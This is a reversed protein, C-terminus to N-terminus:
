RVDTNHGAVWLWKDGKKRYVDTIKVIGFESKGTSLVVSIGTVYYHVIALEPLVTICVPRLEQIPTQETKADYTAWKRFSAKDSPLPAGQFWITLADDCYALEGEVDGKASLAWMAEVTTWVEKQATSWEQSFLITSPLLLLMGLVRVNRM